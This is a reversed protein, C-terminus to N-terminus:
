EPTRQHVRPRFWLIMTAGVVFFPVVHTFRAGLFHLVLGYLAVAFSVAYIALYGVRWRRAANTDGPNQHMSAEAKHVFTRNFYFASSVCALSVFAIAIEITGLQTAHSSAPLRAMLGFYVAVALLMCWRILRVNSVSKSQSDM